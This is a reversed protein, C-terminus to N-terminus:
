PAYEDRGWGTGGLSIGLRLTLGNGTTRAGGDATLRTASYAASGNLQAGPAVWVLLGLGGGFATGTAERGEISSELRTIRGLLYPTFNGYGIPLALRPEFFVGSLVADEDSGAVDHSTRLYGGGISLMSVGLNAQVDFGPGDNIVRFDGGRYAAYVGGGELSLTPATRRGQAALPAAAAALLALTLLLRAPRPRPSSVLTAPTM